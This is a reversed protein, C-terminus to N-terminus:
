DPVIGERLGGRPGKGGAVHFSTFIAGVHANTEAVAITRALFNEDWADDADLFAVWPASCAAAGVNRAGGPGTREIRITRIRPDGLDRVRAAGDDTSGDDVLVISFDSRTQALVSRVARLVVPAHNYLPIVVDVIPTQLDVRVTGREFRSAIR